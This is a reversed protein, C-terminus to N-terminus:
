NEWEPGSIITGQELYHNLATEVRRMKHEFWAADTSDLQRTGAPSLVTYTYRWLSRSRDKGIASLAIEFQAALVQPWIWSFAIKCKAPDYHTVIWITEQGGDNPTAFVGGLEAVGSKSYITRYKWQPLWEAERVPCLLPFVKEPSGSNSQMFERVVRKAPLTNEDTYM